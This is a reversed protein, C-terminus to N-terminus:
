PLIRQVCKNETTNFCKGIGCNCIKIAKEYTPNPPCSCWGILCTNPFDHDDRCFCVETEINGGSNICGQEEPSPTKNVIIVNQTIILKQEMSENKIDIGKEYVNAIYSGSPINSITAGIESFCMCKCGPGSWIEFINITSGVTEKQIEAKRCCLHNIARSYKISNEVVEIKPEQEVGEGVSKTATGSETEACGRVIPSLIINQLNSGTPQTSWYYSGILGVIIVALVSSIILYNKKM